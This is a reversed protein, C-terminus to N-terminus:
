PQLPMVYAVLLVSQTGTSAWATGIRGLPQQNDGTPTVLWCGHPPRILIRAGM